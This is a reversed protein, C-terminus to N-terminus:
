LVFVGVEGGQLINLPCLIEDQLFGGKALWSYHLSRSVELSSLEEPETVRGSGSLKQYVLILNHCASSFKKNIKFAENLQSLHMPQESAWFTRTLLLSSTIFSPYIGLLVNHGQISKYFVVCSVEAEEFDFAMMRRLINFTGTQTKRLLEQIATGPDGVLPECCFSVSIPEKGPDM